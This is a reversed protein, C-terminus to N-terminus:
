IRKTSFSRTISANNLINLNILWDMVGQEKMLSPFNSLLFAGVFV